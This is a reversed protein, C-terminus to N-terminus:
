KPPANTVAVRYYRQDPGALLVDNTCFRGDIGAIWNRMFPVWEEGCLASKYQLQYWSNAGTEWCLEIQPTNTSLVIAVATQNTRQTHVTWRWNYSPNPLSGPQLFQVSLMYFGPTPLPTNGLTFSGNATFTLQTRPPSPVKARVAILTAGGLNADLVELHVDTIELHVPVYVLFTDGQSSSESLQHTGVFTNEGAVLCGVYTPQSQNGPLDGQVAEDYLTTAGAPALSALVAVVLSLLQGQRCMLLDLADIKMASM